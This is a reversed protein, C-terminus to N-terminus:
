GVTVDVFAGPNSYLFPNLFGMAPKGANLRAENLLSIMAAFVPCSASTGGVGDQEKQDIILTYGTGLASVDPTARGSKRWECETSNTPPLANSESQLFNEVAKAQWSPQPFNWSFGGGSGFHDETSVADEIVDTKDDNHFRTAGVATM